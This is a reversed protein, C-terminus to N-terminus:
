DVTGNQEFFKVSYNVKTVWGFINIYETKTVTLTGPINDKGVRRFHYLEIIFNLDDERLFYAEPFKAQKTNSYLPTANSHFLSLLIWQESDSPIFAYPVFRCKRYKASANLTKVREKLNRTRGFKFLNDYAESKMIYTYPVGEETITRTRSGFPNDLGSLYCFEERDLPAIIQKEMEM